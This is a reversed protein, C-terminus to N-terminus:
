IKGWNHKQNFFNFIGLSDSKVVEEERLFSKSLVILTWYWELGGDQKLLLQLLAAVTRRGSYGAIRLM